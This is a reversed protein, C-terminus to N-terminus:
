AENWDGTITWLRVLSIWGQTGTTQTFAQLCCCSVELHKWARPCVRSQTPPTCSLPGLWLFQHHVDHDYHPRWFTLISSLSLCTETGANWRPTQTVPHTWNIKCCLLARLVLSELSLASQVSHCSLLATKKKNTLLSRNVFVFWQWMELMKMGYLAMSTNIMWTRSLTETHALISLHCAFLWSMLQQTRCGRSKVMSSWLQFSCNLLKQVAGLWKDPEWGPFVGSLFATQHGQCLGVLDLLIGFLLCCSM